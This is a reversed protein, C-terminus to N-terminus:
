LEVVAKNHGTVRGMIIKKTKPNQIEIYDGFKGNKKAIGTTELRVTNKSVHIKVKQGSSILNKPRLDHVKLIGGEVLNRNLKYFKINEIDTFLQSPDKALSEVIEFDDKTLIPTHYPLNKKIKLANIKHRITATLWVTQDSYLVKINKRGSTDCNSCDFKLGEGREILLASHPYLASVDSFDLNKSKFHDKLAESLTDLHIQDPKISITPHEKTALVKSLHSGRIDGSGSAVLDLFADKIDNSCNTSRIVTEDLIKNIKYIQDYTKIECSLALNAFTLTFLIITLKIM